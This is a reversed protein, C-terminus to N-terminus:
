VISLGSQYY